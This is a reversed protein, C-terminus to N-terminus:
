LLGPAGDAALSSMHFLSKKCSEGFPDIGFEFIITGVIGFLMSLSGCLVIVGGNLM